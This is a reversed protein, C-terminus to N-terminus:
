KNILLQINRYFLFFQRETFFNLYIFFVEYFINIIFIFHGMLRYVNGTIDGNVPINQFVTM